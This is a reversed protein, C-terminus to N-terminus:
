PHEPRLARERHRNRRIDNGFFRGQRDTQVPRCCQEHGYSKYDDEDLWICFSPGWDHDRSYEDDFGFCESGEGALGAAIRPMLDPLAKELAPRGAESFYREALELGKM